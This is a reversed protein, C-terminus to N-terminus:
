LGRAKKLLEVGKKSVEIIEELEEKTLSNPAKRSLKKLYDIYDQGYTDLMYPYYNEYNGNLFLNCHACQINVNIPHYRTKIWQRVIFHGAHCGSRWFMVKGCTVCTCYGTGTAARLRIFMSFWRDAIKILQRKTKPKKM